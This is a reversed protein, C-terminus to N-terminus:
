STPWKTAQMNSEVLYNGSTAHKIVRYGGSESAYPSNVVKQLHGKEILQKIFGTEGNVVDGLVGVGELYTVAAPDEFLYLDLATQLATVNSMDGSIRAKEIQNMVLPVAIAALVALIGIVVLLEILTFGEEERHLNRLAQAIKLVMM